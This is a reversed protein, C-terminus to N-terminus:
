HFAFVGNEGDIVILQDTVIPQTAYGRGLGSFQWLLTGHDADFQYLTGNDNAIFVSGDVITPVMSIDANGLPARWAISGNSVNVASLGESTGLFLKGYGVAPSAVDKIAAGLSMSWVEKGNTANLAFVQGGLTTVFLDGDALPPSEVIGPQPVAEKWVLAGSGADFAAVTNNNIVSYVLRGDTTPYPLFYDSSLKVQWFTSSTSLNMALLSSGFSRSNASAVYAVHGCIATSGLDKVDYGVVEHGGNKPIFEYLGGQNSGLYVFRGDSALPPAPGAGTTVNWQESGSSLNLAFLWYTAVFVEGLASVIDPSGGGTKNQWALQGLFKGAPTSSFSFSSYGTRQPDHKFTLWDDSYAAAVGCSGNQLRTLSTETLSTSASTSATQSRSLSTSSQTTARFAGAYFSVAVGAVVILAIVIIGGALRGIARHAKLIM